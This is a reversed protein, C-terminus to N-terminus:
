KWLNGTYKDVYYIPAEMVSGVTSWNGKPFKGMDFETQEATKTYSTTYFHECVGGSGLIGKGEPTDVLLDEKYAMNGNFLEVADARAVRWGTWEGATLLTSCKNCVYGGDTTFINPDINLHNNGCTKCAVVDASLATISHGKYKANKCKATLAWDDRYTLHTARSEPIEKSHVKSFVMTVFFPNEGDNGRLTFTGCENNLVVKDGNKDGYLFTDAYPIYKPRYDLLTYEVRDTFIKGKYKFENQNLRVVFGGEQAFQQIAKNYRGDIDYQRDVLPLVRNLSKFYVKPWFLARGVIKKNKMVVVIQVGNKEYWEMKKNTMCSSVESKYAKTVDDIITVEHGKLLCTAFQELIKNQLDPIAKLLSKGPKGTYGFESVIDVFSGSVKRMGCAMLYNYGGQAWRKRFLAPTQCHTEDSDCNFVRMKKIGVRLRDEDLYSVSEAKFSALCTIPATRPSDIGLSGFIERIDDSATFPLKIPSPEPDKEMTIKM